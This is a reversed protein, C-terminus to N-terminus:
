TSIWLFGCAPGRRWVTTQPVRTKAGTLLLPGTRHVWKRRDFDGGSLERFNSRCSPLSLLVCVVQRLWRASLSDSLKVGIFAGSVSGIVLALVLTPDIKGLSFPLVVMIGTVIIADAINVGVRARPQVSLYLLALGVSGSEVSNM